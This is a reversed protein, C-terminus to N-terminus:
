GRIRGQCWSRQRRSPTTAWRRNQLFVCSGHGKKLALAFYPPKADIKVLHEPYNKRFFAREEPLVEPQCLCCMGCESPCDVKRGTVESYDVEYDAVSM